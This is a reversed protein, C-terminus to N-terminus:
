FSVAINFTFIVNDNHCYWRGMWLPLSLIVSVTPQWPLSLSRIIYVSYLVSDCQCHWKRSSMLMQPCLGISLSVESVTVSDYQCQWSSLLFSLNYLCHYFWMSWQSKLLSALQYNLRRLDVVVVDVYLCHCHCSVTPRQRPTSRWGGFWSPSLSSSSWSFPLVSESSWWLRSRRTMMMRFFFWHAQWVQVSILDWTSHLEVFDSM